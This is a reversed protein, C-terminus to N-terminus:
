GSSRHRASERGPACRRGDRAGPTAILCGWRSFSVLVDGNRGGRLRAVFVRSALADPRQATSPAKRHRAADVLDNQDAIEPAIRFDAGEIGAISDGIESQSRRLGPAVAVGALALLAGLPVAHHDEVVVQHLHGLVIQAFARLDVDLARQLRALELVLRPLFSGGGLHHQLLETALEGHKVAAALAGAAVGIMQAGIGIRGENLTEISVKYGQGVAGLVNEVPVECGDLILETTSSARIGLKNEKKGVAFGKFAREVIFATIGKYGKGPDANAFIVYLAAEAGNTIWLKRGNLVWRDGRREARTELGFADSGSGPESLAYAGVWEAALRPLYRRQQEETAWRLLCNNVLTNQVDVLIAVAPDVRSLAEVALAALFFSGGAGGLSEPVEIGMLGLEFCPAILSTDLAGAEDMAHSLPRVREEAFDRVSGQFMEEEESLVTLPGAVTQPTTM